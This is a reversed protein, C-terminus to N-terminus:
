FHNYILDFLTFNAICYTYLSHLIGQLNALMLMPFALPRDIWFVCFVMVLWTIAVFFFSSRNFM